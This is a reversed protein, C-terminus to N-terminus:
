TIVRVFRRIRPAMMYPLVEQPILNEDLSASHKAVAKRLVPSSPSGDSDEINRLLVKAAKIESVEFRVRISDGVLATVSGKRWVGLFKESKVYVCDGVFAQEQAVASSPTCYALM